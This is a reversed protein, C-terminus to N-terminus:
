KIAGIGFDVGDQDRRVSVLRATGPDTFPLVTSGDYYGGLDGPGITGDANLDVGVFFSFANGAALQTIRLAITKTEAPATAEAFDGFVGLASPRGETIGVVARTGKPIPQSSLVTGTVTLYGAFAPERPSFDLRFDTSTPESGCAMLLFLPPWALALRPLCFRVPM